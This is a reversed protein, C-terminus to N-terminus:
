KAQRNPSSPNQLATLKSVSHFPSTERMRCISRLWHDEVLKQSNDLGKQLNNTSLTATNRSNLWAKDWKTIRRTKLCPHNIIQNPLFSEWARALRIEQTSVWSSQLSHKALIIWQCCQKQKTSSSLTAELHNGQMTPPDLMTKNSSRPNTNTSTLGQAQSCRSQNPYKVLPLTALIQEILDM